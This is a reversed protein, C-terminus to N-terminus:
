FFSLGHFIFCFSLGHSPRGQFLILKGKPHLLCIKLLKTELTTISISSYFNQLKKKKNNNNNHLLNIFRHLVNKSIFSLIGTNLCIKRINNLRLYFINITIYHFYVIECRYFFKRSKVIARTIAM